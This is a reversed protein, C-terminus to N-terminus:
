FDDVFWLPIGRSDTDYERPGSKLQEMPLDSPFRHDCYAYHYVPPMDEGKHFAYVKAAIETEFTTVREHHRLHAGWSEEFYVEKYKRPDAIDVFFGWQLVGNQYRFARLQELAERFDAADAEDIEYVVTVLIPGHNLPVDEAVDPDPWAKSPHLDHEVASNLPAVFRSLSTILLTIGAAAFVERLGVHKALYGWTASGASAAAFFFLLYVSMARGQVWPPASSQVVFHFNSLVCLWSIGAFYMSIGAYWINTGYALGLLCLAFVVWFSSVISDLSWRSRLKPLIKVAGTVAGVGFVALLIGYEKPGLGYGKNILIPILAWLCSTCLLFLPARLLVTRLWPSHRVHRVGVKMAPVFSERPAAAKSPDRQWRVLVIIVALFSISNLYFAVAPGFYLLVVGALAPGVARACNLAMGNLAVAGPLHKRSVVEPTVSHWGPSNLAVGLSMLFTTLLLSEPTMWGKWTLVGMGASAVLMWTQTFILYKRRDILDALTGAPLAMMFMPLTTLVQILSVLFPDPSLTTMLWGDAVQHMWGGLSSVFTAVWLAKFLPNELADWATSQSLTESKGSSM